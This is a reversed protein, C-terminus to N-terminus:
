SRMWDTFYSSKIWGTFYTFPSILVDEDIFMSHVHKYGRTNTLVQDIASKKETNKGFTYVGTCKDDANLLIKNKMGVWDEIMEGNSDSKKFEPELLTTRGNGM